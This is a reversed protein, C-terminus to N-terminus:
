KKKSTYKDSLDVVDAGMAILKIINIGHEASQKQNYLESTLVIEGNDAKLVFYYKKNRSLKLEFKAMSKELIFTIWKSFVM